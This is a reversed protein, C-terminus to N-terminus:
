AAKNKAKSTKKAKAKKKVSKKPPSYKRRSYLGERDRIGRELERVHTRCEDCLTSATGDPLDRAPNECRSCLGKKKREIRYEAMKERQHKLHRECLRKGKYVVQGCGFACLKKM